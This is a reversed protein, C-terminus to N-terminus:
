RDIIFHMIKYAITDIVSFFVSAVIALVFVVITMMVVEKRGPWSIKDIEKRVDTM